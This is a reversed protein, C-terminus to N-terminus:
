LVRWVCCFTEETINAHKIHESLTWVAGSDFAFFPVYLGLGM